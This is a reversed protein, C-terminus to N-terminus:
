AITTPWSGAPEAEDTAAVVAPASRAEGLHSSASRASQQVAGLRVAKMLTLVGAAACAYIPPPQWDFNSESV